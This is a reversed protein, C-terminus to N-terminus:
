STVREIKAGMSRLRVDLDEYGRDVQGINTLKTTGNAIMGAMILTAGHRLDEIAFEGAQLPTSGTIKIAHNLEPSDEDANFNYFEDRNHIEPQFYEINAGMTQLAPVYQFRKAMVTEHLISTGQCQTLLTAMLPQWDTMFAPEIGVTITTAQLPKTYFFRIGYDGVEYSAGIQDLARLFATLHEARANEIIVDGKTAIAACAYSVAENRDPIIKHIAGHLEKVGEIQITRPTIREVRAGMKNLFIIMDDIEPEQAANELITIGEAKVAAMLLTETGTHTNKAFRYTAGTLKDAYAVYQGDEVTVTAGLAQLGAFHRDLSRKGIKDGGPQPVVAKGFRELLVPIFMTSFRGQQGHEPNIIHNNLTSPDIFIARECSRDVKAGLYEIIDAVLTVDSIKSFNLLRSQSNGLMAAIMLKYSANKAGGIRVSGHLPTGGTVLFHSNM